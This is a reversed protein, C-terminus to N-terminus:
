TSPSELLRQKRRDARWLSALLGGLLLASLGGGLKMVNRAMPAYRGEDADYHFCYLLLRDVSGGAKGESAEVLSLRLTRSEHELGYLYRAVKGEPSLLTISAPHIWEGRAENYAYSVGVADAIRRVDAESGSLFHWGAAAGPRGYQALYREKFRAASEPTEKPDLSITVVQFEGGATWALQKLSKVFGNLQLSCLMPCSSYNFTLIVPRKGDFYRRLTVPAGAEDRFPVDLPAFTDLKEVVDIGELRKPLAEQRDKKLEAAPAAWVGGSLTTVVPLTLLALSRRPTM